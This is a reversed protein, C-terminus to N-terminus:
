KKYQRHISTFIYFPPKHSKTKSMVKDCLLATFLSIRISRRPMYDQQSSTSTTAVLDVRPHLSRLTELDRGTDLVRSPVIMWLPDVM